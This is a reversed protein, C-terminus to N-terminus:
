PRKGPPAIKCGEVARENLHRGPLVDTGGGPRGETLPRIQTWAQDQIGKLRDTVGNEGQESGDNKKEVPPSHCARESQRDRGGDEAQEPQQKGGSLCGRGHETGGM